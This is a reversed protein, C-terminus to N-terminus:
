PNHTRNGHKKRREMYSRWNNIVETERYRAAIMTNIDEDYTGALCLQYILHAKDAKDETTAVFRDEAQDIDGVPPYRDMFVVAEARDLTLAEKGADINLLLLNLEGNQFAQCYERRRQVATAGIILAHPVTLQQSLRNLYQTFKSFVLTPQDPYDKLYQLLWETKPSGGELNLIGPDLCIQRYRILRDLEGITVIDETEWVEALEDLYKKQKPTPDLKIPIYEKDPLWQMVDKRKRVISIRPLMSDLMLIGKFNIKGIEMYTQGRPNTQRTTYFYENIFNWYSRFTHPYLFHLISWIEHTHNMTPTGTLCYRVPINILKFMAKATATKPNRIRHAEDLVIADPQTLILEELDTGSRRLLDYNIILGVAYNENWSTLVADFLFKRRAATGSIVIAPRGTWREYEDRWQFLASAPCVIVIRKSHKLHLAYLVTPTKGTRQENFLAASNRASLFSADEIQYPRLDEFM